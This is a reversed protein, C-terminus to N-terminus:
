QDTCDQRTYPERLDMRGLTDTMQGNVLFTVDQGRKELLTRTLTCLLMREGSAGYNLGTYAQPFDVFYHTGRLYVRPAAAGQPVARLLGTGSGAPGQAWANAAAQALATPTEETVQVTRQVARLNQVQTDPYYVTVKVARREALELTPPTPLAPPRQVAQYAYASVLLLALTVVNFLSLFRRLPIM